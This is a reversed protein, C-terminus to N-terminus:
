SELAFGFDSGTGLMEIQYPKKRTLIHWVNYKLTEDETNSFGLPSFLGDNEM